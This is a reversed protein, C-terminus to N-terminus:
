PIRMPSAAPAQNRSVRYRRGARGGWGRVVIVAASRILHRM